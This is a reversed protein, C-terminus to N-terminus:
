CVLCVYNLNIHSNESIQTNLGINLAITIVIQNYIYLKSSVTKNLNSSLQSRLSHLPMEVMDWCKFHIEDSKEM